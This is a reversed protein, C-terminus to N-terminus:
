QAGYRHERFFRPGDFFYFIGAFVCKTASQYDLSSVSSEAHVVRLQFEIKVGSPFTALASVEDIFELVEV